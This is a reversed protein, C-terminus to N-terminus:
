ALAERETDAVCCCQRELSFNACSSSICLFILVKFWINERSESGLKPSLQRINDAVFDDPLIGLAICVFL